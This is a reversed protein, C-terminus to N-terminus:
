YCIIMLLMSALQANYVETVNPTQNVINAPQGDTQRYTPGHTDASPYYESGLIKFLVGPFKVLHVIKYCYSVLIFQNYKSTLLDFTLTM